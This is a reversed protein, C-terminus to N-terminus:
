EAVIRIEGVGGQVDLDITVPSTEVKPNIWRGDRKELGTVNISGLGGSVAASIAVSVPLLVTASGVGGRVKVAYSHAPRGRLDLELEGAGMDLDAQRLSLTGLTLHAQGAGLRVIVDMPMSDHLAVHWDNRAQSGSGSHSAQTVEVERETGAARSTVTPKWAPVNYSFDGVLLDSAGGKMDLTGAGMTLRVRTHAPTELAVVQRSTEVPAAPASSGGCGAFALLCAVANACPKLVFDGM